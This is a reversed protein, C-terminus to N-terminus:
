SGKRRNYYGRQPKKGVEEKTELIIEVLLKNKARIWYPNYNYYRGDPPVIQGRPDKVM